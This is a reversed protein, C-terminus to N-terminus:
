LFRGYNDRQRKSAIDDYVHHCSRCLPIFDDLDRKAKHSISAWEIPKIDEGCYVCEKPKKLKKHLWVHIGIYGIDDGKWQPHNEGFFHKGYFYNKEGTRKKNAEWGRAQIERWNKAPTRGTQAISMKKRTEESIHKGKHAISMKLKSEESHKQYHM